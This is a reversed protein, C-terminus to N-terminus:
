ASFSKTRRKMLVLPLKTWSQSKQTVCFRGHQAYYSGREWVLIGEKKPQKTLQYIMQRTRHFMAEIYTNLRSFQLINCDIENISSADQGKMEIKYEGKISSGEEIKVGTKDIDKKAGGKEQVKKWIKDLLQVKALVLVMEKKSETTHDSFPDLNSELTGSFLIPDQPILVVNRRLIHLGLKAINQGDILICNDNLDIQSLDVSRDLIALQSADKESMETDYEIIRLMGLTLTSKGSGTRGVIGIKEKSDIDISLDRIVYPLDKDYRLSLKNIRITGSEPWSDNAPKPDEFDNEQAELNIYEYIREISSMRTDLNGIFMLLMTITSGINLAQSLSLGVISANTGLEDRAYVALYFVCAVVLSTLLDIRLNLWQNCRRSMLYASICNNVRKIMRKNLAEEYGYAHITPLGDRTEEFQSVIPSRTIAEIRRIDSAAQIYSSYYYMYLLLIVVVVIFFYYTVIGFLILAGLLQLTMRFCIQLLWVLDNDVNAQDKCLRNIIRGVPTKDFWRLPAKLITRVMDMQTRRTLNMIFYIYLLGRLVLILGHFGALGAYIPVYFRDIQGLKEEAWVGVWWETMICAAQELPFVLFCLIISFLNSSKLVLLYNRWKIRGSEAKEQEVLTGKNKCEEKKKPPKIAKTKDTEKGITGCPSMEQTNYAMGNSSSVSLDNFEDCTDILIRYTGQALIRGDKMVIVIIILLRIKSQDANITSRMNNTVLIRTKNSLEKM